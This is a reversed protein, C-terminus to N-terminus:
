LCVIIKKTYTTMDTNVVVFYVGNEHLAINMQSQINSQTKEIMHGTANFVTVCTTNQPLSVTFTGNSPNPYVEFTNNTENDAIGVPTVAFQLSDSWNSWRLNKDRYRMRWKYSQGVSLMGSPLSYTTLDLGAYLNVPNYFPSGSDGYYNETDVVVDTLPSSFTGSSSVLQFESSMLTDSGSFASAILTPQPSSYLEPSIGDPKDPAPQNLIRHWKDMVQLNRPKDTNGLSYMTAFMTKATMNIDVLIFNYHDLSKQIETYDTQNSYMGWRDLDGGAGGSLVEWFDWNSSHTGRIIGREYNHSHGHTTMVMKPCAAELPYVNDEVYAMNGDPWVESHGPQHNYVFVFDTSADANAENLRDQLWNTQTFFNYTGTTNLAIFKCNGLNFSYYRESFGGLDEYKMFQYFYNSEGEHNGISVMSSIYPSLGSCPNFYENMFKGLDAGNECIDGSNMIFNVSDQWDPGYLQHYLFAITDLIGTSTLTNTQNDGIKAFRIHKGPTGPTPPTRFHFVSSTDAGSICRYYYRTDATLGTLKVTHWRNITPSTGINEYSGTQSSGLSPTTGYQVLSSATYYSNWSIYNSSTTPSQLYPTINSAHFGGLGLVEAQSLSANFLAVQAVYIMNDESNEDAFFLVTPDLSYTGDVPQSVGDLVLKGDIYYRLSSGLDVTVVVRYWTNAKISFGTYGTASIGLQSNPNFFVEGDNSNSENTQYLCHFEKPNDIMVDFMMSYENVYSGGGNAPIGHTCTYYSGIDIAVAGDGSAPGPFATHSGTLVLNNGTTAQLLNGPNDFTWRGTLSTPWTQAFVTANTLIFVLILYNKKMIYIAQPDKFINIKAPFIIIKQPLSILQFFL